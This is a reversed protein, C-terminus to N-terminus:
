TNEEHGEDGDDDLSDIWAFAAGRPILVKRGVTVRKPGLDEDWL